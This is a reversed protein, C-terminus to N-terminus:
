GPTAVQNENSRNVPSKKAQWGGIFLAARTASTCFIRLLPAELAEASRAV